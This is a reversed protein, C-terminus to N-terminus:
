HVHQMKSGARGRYHVFVHFSLPSGYSEALNAPVVYGTIDGGVGFTGWSPAARDRVYGATM